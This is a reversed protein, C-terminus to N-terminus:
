KFNQLFCATYLYNYNIYKKRMEFCTNLLIDIGSPNVIFKSNLNFAISLYHKELSM